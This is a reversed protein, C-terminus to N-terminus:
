FRGKVRRPAMELEGGFIGVLASPAALMGPLCVPELGWLQPGPAYVTLIRQLPKSERGGRCSRNIQMVFLLAHTGRQWSITLILAWEWM